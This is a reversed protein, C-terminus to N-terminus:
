MGTFEREVQTTVVRGGDDLVIVVRLSVDAFFYWLFETGFEKRAVLGREPKERESISFGNELLWARVSSTDKGTSIQEQVGKEVKRLEVLLFPSPIAIYVVVACVAAAAFWRGKATSFM